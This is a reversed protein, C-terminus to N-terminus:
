IEGRDRNTSQTQEPVANQNAKNTSKRDFLYCTTKRRPLYDSISREAPIEKLGPLVRRQDKNNIRRKASVIAISISPEPIIKQIWTTSTWWCKDGELHNKM